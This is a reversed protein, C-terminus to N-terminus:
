AGVLEALDGVTECALLADWCAPRGADELELAIGYREYPHVLERLSTEPDHALIIALNSM